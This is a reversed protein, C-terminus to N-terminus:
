FTTPLWGLFLDTPSAEVLFQSYRVCSYALVVNVLLSSCLDQRHAAMDELFLDKQFAASFQYECRFFVSLLDRMLVDDDCVTTWSSPKVESLRPEVVEAAHFPKLYASQYEETGALQPAFHGLVSSGQLQSSLGASEYILSDLYPNDPLLYEPMGSRYPFEYRFRTEPSVAMQLLLSGTKAHNLITAADTGARIRRLVDAADKDPLNSLLDFIEKYVTSRDRLNRYGRSLAQLPTEGLLTTYVCM